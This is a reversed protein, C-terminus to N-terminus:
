ADDAGDDPEEGDSGEFNGDFGDDDGDEDPDVTEAPDTKPPMGEPQPNISFGSLDVEPKGDKLTLPWSAMVYGENDTDCLVMTYTGDEIGEYTIKFVFDDNESEREEYFAYTVSADDADDEYVYSGKTCIGIWSDTALGLGANVSFIIDGSETTFTILKAVAKSDATTSSAAAVAPDGNGSVNSGDPKKKGCSALSFAMVLALLTTLIKKM